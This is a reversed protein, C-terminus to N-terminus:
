SQTSRPTISTTPITPPDDSRRTSSRGARRRGPIQRPRRPVTRIARAPRAVARTMTAPSVTVVVRRNKAKAAEDIEDAALRTEGWGVATIATRPVGHAALWDAVSAARRESLAQNHSTEGDSDAHGEVLVKGGPALATVVEQLVTAAAPNLAASDKAFLLDAPVVLTATGDPQRQWTPLSEPGAPVTVAPGREAGTPRLDPDRGAAPSGACAALLVAAALALATIATPRRGNM